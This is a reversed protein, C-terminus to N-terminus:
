GDRLAAILREVASLEDDGVKLDPVLWHPSIGYVQALAAVRLPEASDKGAFGDTEYKRIIERSITAAWPPLLASAARAAADQSIRRSVRAVRFRQASSAVLTELVAEGQLDTQRDDQLLGQGQTM